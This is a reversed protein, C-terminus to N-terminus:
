NYYYHYYYYYNTAHSVSTTKAARLQTTCPLTEQRV